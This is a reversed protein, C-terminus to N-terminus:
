DDDVSTISNDVALVLRYVAPNGNFGGQVVELVGQSRLEAVHRMFRRKSVDDPYMGQRIVALRWGGFYTRADVGHQADDYTLMCLAVLTLRAGDSLKEPATAFGASVNRIGM